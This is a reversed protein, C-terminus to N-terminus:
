ASPRASAASRSMPSARRGEAARVRTAHTKRSGLAGIYFCKSRLAQICRRSRRDEPRADPGRLGHLPGDRAQPLVDDPWEAYLPVDPFREPTAFATRPDVITMDHGLLRAMPALAQSIHVAGTVVIRVPPVQVTLFVEGEADRGHREQRHAAARCAPRGASRGRFRARAERTAARGSALDTVLSPRAGRRRAGRQPRCLIELKM